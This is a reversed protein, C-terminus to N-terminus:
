SKIPEVAAITNGAYAEADANQRIQGGPYARQLKTAARRRGEQGIRRGLVHMMVLGFAFTAHIWMLKVHLM